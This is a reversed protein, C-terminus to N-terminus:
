LRRARLMEGHFAGIQQNSKQGEPSRHHAKAGSQPRAQPFTLASRLFAGCDTAVEVSDAWPASFGQMPIARPNNGSLLALGKNPVSYM